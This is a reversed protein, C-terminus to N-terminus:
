ANRCARILNVWFWSDKGDARHPPITLGWSRFYERWTMSRFFEKESAWCRKWRTRSEMWGGTLFMFHIVDKIGFGLM